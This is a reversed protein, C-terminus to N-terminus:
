ADKGQRGLEKKLDYNFGEKPKREAGILFLRQDPWKEIAERDLSKVIKVVETFGLEECKGLADRPISVKDVLSHILSGHDLNLVDGVAFLARKELKMLKTLAAECLALLEKLPQTQARCYEAARALEEEYQKLVHEIEKKHQSIEALLRDAQVRPDDPADPKKRQKEM